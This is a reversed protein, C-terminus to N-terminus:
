TRRRPVKAKTRARKTAKEAQRQLDRQRFARKQMTNRCRPSCYKAQYAAARFMKGCTECSHLQAQALDEMARLALSSLLSTAVWRHTANKNNIELKPFCQSALQTLRYAGRAPAGPDTPKTIAELGNGLLWAAMAFKWVPEGYVAWFEPGIPLPYSHTACETLPVDPFYQAWTQSLSEEVLSRGDISTVLAFPARVHSSLESDSVLEGAQHGQTAFKGLGRQQTSWAGPINFYSDQRVHLLPAGPEMPYWRPWFTVAHIEHYLVGLLGFQRCWDLIGAVLAPNEAPRTLQDATSVLKTLSEYPREALIWPDYTHPKTGPVPAICGNRLEYRDFRVWNGSALSIPEAM